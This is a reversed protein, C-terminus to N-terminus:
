PLLACLAHWASDASAGAVHLSAIRLGRPGFEAAWTTTYLVLGPLSLAAAVHSSGSDNGVFATARALRSVLADVSEARRVEGVASWRADEGAEAPGLLVDVAGRERRWRAALSALLDAPARKAPSGAGPLLALRPVSGDPAGGDAGARPAVLRPLPAPDTPDGVARAFYTSAHTTLPPRPFPAVVAGAAALRAVVHPLSAGTFSVVRAFGALWRQPEADDGPAFLRAVEPADLSRVAPRAPFFRAVEAAGGRAYITLRGARALYATAPELCVADGLAGPFLVLTEDRGASDAM